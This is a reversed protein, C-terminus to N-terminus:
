INSIQSNLNSHSDQVGRTNCFMIILICYASCCQQASFFHFTIGPLNVVKMFDRLTPFYLYNILVILFEKNEKLLFNKCNTKKIIM